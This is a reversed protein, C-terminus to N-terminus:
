RILQRAHGPGHEGLIFGIPGWHQDACSCCSQGASSPQSLGPKSIANAIGVGETIKELRLTRPYGRDMGFEPVFRERLITVICLRCSIFSAAWSFSGCVFSSTRPSPSAM